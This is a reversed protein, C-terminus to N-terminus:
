CIKLANLLVNELSKEYKKASKAASSCQLICFQVRFIAICGVRRTTPSAFAVVVVVVAVAVVARRSFRVGLPSYLNYSVRRLCQCVACLRRRLCLLARLSAFTSVVIVVVLSLLLGFVCVPVPACVSVKKWSLASDLRASGLGLSWHSERLSWSERARGRCLQHAATVEVRKQKSEREREKCLQQAATTFNSLDFCSAKAITKAAASLSLRTTTQRM